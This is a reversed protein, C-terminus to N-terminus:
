NRGKNHRKVWREVLLAIVDLVIAVVATIVEIQQNGTM